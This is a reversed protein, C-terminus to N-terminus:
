WAMRTGQQWRTTDRWGAEVAKLRSNGLMLAELTQGRLLCGMIEALTRIERERGQPNQTRRVKPLLVYTTYPM